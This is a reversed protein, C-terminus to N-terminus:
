TIFLQCLETQQKLFHAFLEFYTYLPPSVSFVAAYSDLPHHSAMIEM